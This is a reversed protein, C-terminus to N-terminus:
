CSRQMQRPYATSSRGSREQDATHLWLHELHETAHSLTERASGNVTADRSTFVGGQLAFHCVFCFGCLQTHCLKVKELYGVAIADRSCNSFLLSIPTKLM